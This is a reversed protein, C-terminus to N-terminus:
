FAYLRLIEKIIEHRKIDCESFEVHELGIIPYDELRKLLDMLGNNEFGRDYQGTDGTIILKSDKGLRTMVMRMQNPTSNQMEDAIIWSNDFTRGRMYALPCTEFKAKASLADKMPRVWPDMKKDLTGPLFGHQEDVSIAPRTLIINKAHRSAAQCAMMTKGTGAPGTAVVIPVRPNELLLQYLRHAM